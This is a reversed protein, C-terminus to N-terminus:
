RVLEAWVSKGTRAPACGWDRALAAVVQLGRGAPESPAPRRLMPRAQSSDSVSLTITGGQFHVAVQFRSRAHAVANTALESVILSADEALDAEGREELVEAVFTRARRPADLTPEYGAIVVTPRRTAATREVQPPEKLATM